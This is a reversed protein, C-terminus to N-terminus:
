DGEQGAPCFDSLLWEVELIHRTEKTVKYYESIRTLGAAALIHPGDALLILDERSIAPVKEDILIRRLRKKRGESIEMYDGSCRRRLCSRDSSEPIGGSRMRCAHICCSVSSRADVCYNEKSEHNGGIFIFQNPIHEQLYAESMNIKFMTKCDTLRILFASGVPDTFSESIFWIHM